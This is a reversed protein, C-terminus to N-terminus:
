LSFLSFGCSVLLYSTQIASNGQEQVLWKVFVLHGAMFLPFKIGCRFILTWNIFKWETFNHPSTYNTFTQYYGIQEYHVTIVHVEVVGEAPARRGEHREQRRLIQFM